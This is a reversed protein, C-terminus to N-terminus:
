VRSVIEAAAIKVSVISELADAIVVQSEGRTGFHLVASGLRAPELPPAEDLEALNSCM